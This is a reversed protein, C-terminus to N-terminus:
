CLSCSLCSVERFACNGLIGPFHRQGGTSYKPKRGPLTAQCKAAGREWYKRRSRKSGRRKCDPYRFTHAMARIWKM